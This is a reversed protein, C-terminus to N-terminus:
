VMINERSDIGERNSKCPFLGIRLTEKEDPYKRKWGEPVVAEFIKWNSPTAERIAFRVTLEKKEVASKWYMDEGSITAFLQPLQPSTYQNGRALANRANTLTEEMYEFQGFAIFSEYESEIKPRWRVTFSLLSSMISFDIDGFSAEWLHSCNRTELRQIRRMTSPYQKLLLRLAKINCNLSLTDLSHNIYLGRLGYQHFSLTYHEVFVRHTENNVLLLAGAARDLVPRHSHRRLIIRRPSFTAEWIQIRLEAPLQPFFLFKELLKNSPSLEVSQLAECLDDIGNTNTNMMRLSKALLCSLQPLRM